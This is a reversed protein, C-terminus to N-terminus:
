RGDAALASEKGGSREASEPGTNGAGGYESRRRDSTAPGIGPQRCLEKVPVGSEARKLMGVIHHETFRSKRM